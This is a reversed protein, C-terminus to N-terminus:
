QVEDCLVEECLVEEYQAGECLVEQCEGLLAEDFQVEQFGDFQVGQFGDFLVEPCEECLVREKLVFLLHRAVSVIQLRHLNELVDKM